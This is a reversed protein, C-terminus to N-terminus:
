EWTGLDKLRITPRVPQMETLNIGKRGYYVMLGTLKIPYHVTHDGWHMWYQQQTTFSFPNPSAQNLSSKVTIPYSMFRWGDFDLVFKDQPDPPQIASTWQQLRRM